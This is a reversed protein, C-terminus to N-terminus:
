RRAAAIMRHEAGAGGRAGALGSRAVAGVLVVALTNLLLSLM